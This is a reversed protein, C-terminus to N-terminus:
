VGVTHLRLPDFGSEGVRGGRTGVMLVGPVLFWNDSEGRAKISIQVNM